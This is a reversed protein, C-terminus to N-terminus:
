GGKLISDVIDYVISIIFAAVFFSLISVTGVAYVPIKKAFIYSLGIKSLLFLVFKGTYYPMVFLAIVITWTKTKM